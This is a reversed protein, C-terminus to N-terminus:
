PCDQPDLGGQSNVWPLTNTLGFVYVATLDSVNLIYQPPIGVGPGHLDVWTPHAQPLTASGHNILTLQTVLLDKVNVYQDPELVEPPDGATGGCVDGFLPFAIPRANVPFRQTAVELPESCTELNLSDCAYVHYTVCPVIGCDGIHLLSSASWDQSYVTDSLTATWEGDAHQVPEQVLWAPPPSLTPALDVCPGSAICVSPPDTLSCDAPPCKLMYHPPAGTSDDCAADCDSDTLCARTPANQCRRMEAVKVKIAVSNPVGTSPDVSLYRHKKAQHKWDAPLDLPVLECEDPVGNTGADNSSGSDIDCEDGVSNPQCDTQDPNYLDCNDGVDCVGDTDADPGDNAPDNDPLPGFGDTGVACDDCQDGDVDECIDPDRPETDDGDLVGDNDDDGDCVDIVADGDTDAECEDPNGNANCDLSTGSAIDEQDLIGNDNCDSDCEFAGMDVIPPSGNGVDPAMPDDLFRPNGALDTTVHPPVLANDGADNSPSGGALRTDDDLTGIINDAGDPDFFLPDADINGDGWTITPAPYLPDHPVIYVGAEGGEINSYGIVLASEATISIEHGNVSSNSWLISNQITAYAALVAVAGGNAYATNGTFTSNLIIPHADYWCAIAGGDGETVSNGIFNCNTITPRSNWDLCILGGGGMTATNGAFTCNIFTPSGLLCSVAGGPGSGVSNGSFICNSITPSSFFCLLAGANDVARNETIVCNNITPNSRFCTIGGGSGDVVNQTIICNAITPSSGGACRIGGGGSSFGHRITLGDVRAQPPERNNFYFGRGSSECDVICNDPGSASRVTIARGAYDLDRNGTGTYLGDALEITDTIIGECTTADIAEQISDY